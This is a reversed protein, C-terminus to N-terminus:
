GGFIGLNIVDKFTVVLILAMLLMFGVLHVINEKEPPIPKGRVAELLLFVVKGGDLAPIPLLNFFGVNVSILALLMMVPYIGEQSAQGITSIIGVPGSLQDLGVAGRFLQGFFQFMATLMIGFTQFVSQMTKSLDRQMEPVIGIQVRQSEENYVPMVPKSIEEDGRNATVTVETGAELKGVSELLDNWSEIPTTGIRTIRDGEEFGAILLPSNPTFESIVPIQFGRTGYIVALVLIALLFNMFAGAVIIALRKGVSANSYGRPDASSEEEGEMAVYGGVPIARLAYKTEGSKKQLLAPGMGISFENVRVGALKAVVFHGFEHFLIVLLFIFIASIATLM